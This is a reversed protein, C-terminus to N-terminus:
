RRVDAEGGARVYRRQKWDYAVGAPVRLGRARKGDMSLASGDMSLDSGDITLPKAAM